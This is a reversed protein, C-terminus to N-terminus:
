GATSQEGALERVKGLSRIVHDNLDSTQRGDIIERVVGQKDIVYTIRSVLDTSGDPNGFARRVQGDADSLLAFPLELEDAFLAHASLDDRSVGVIVAGNRLFEEATDRFACAQVTCDPTDDKPYFYLVVAQQGRYTELIFEQHPYGPLSFDPAQDGIKVSGVQSAQGGSGASGESKNCGLLVILLLVVTAIATIRM